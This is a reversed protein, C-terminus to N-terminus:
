AWRNKRVYKSFDYKESIHTWRVGNKIKKVISYSSKTTEAIKDYSYRGTALLECIQIATGETIKHMPHESGKMGVKLGTNFAHDINEKPTCWELNWAWNHGKNGDKHNVEPLDDINPIFTKAVLRHISFIYQKGEHTITVKRYGNSAVVPKMIYPKDGYYGTYSRVTGLIDITYPTMIGDICIPMESYRNINKFFQIDLSDKKAKRKDM